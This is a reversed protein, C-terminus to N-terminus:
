DKLARRGLGDLYDSLQDHSVDTFRGAAIGAEGEDGLRGAKAEETALRRKMREISVRLRELVPELPVSEGREAQAISRALSDQWAAPIDADKTM